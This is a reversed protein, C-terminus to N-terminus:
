DLTFPFHSVLEDMYSYYTRLIDLGDGVVDEILRNVILAMMGRPQMATKEHLSSPALSAM